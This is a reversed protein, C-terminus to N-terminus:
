GAFFPECIGRAGTGHIAFLAGALHQGASEDQTVLAASTTVYLVDLETGGFNCMPPYKVPLPIQRIRGGDPDYQAVEGGRVHACWYCGDRDVTAGDVRGAIDETSIFRRQRAIEGTALDFDYAYVVERRSDAVYMTKDDPSWAIGNIVVFGTAMTRCDGNPDLRYLKGVPSFTRDDLTGCWFRGARDCKGDNFRTGAEAPEPSAICEFWGRAPDVRFLGSRLGAVFGGARRLGIAGIDQPMTWSRMEGGRPRYRLIAPATVDVWYLAQDDPSWVPSEGLLNHTEM